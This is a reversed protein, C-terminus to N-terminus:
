CCWNGAPQGARGSVLRSPREGAHGPVSDASLSNGADPNIIFSEWCNGTPRLRGTSSIASSQVTASAETMAQGRRHDDSVRGTIDLQRVSHQRITPSRVDEPLPPDDSATFTQNDSGVETISILPFPSEVGITPSGKQQSVFTCM